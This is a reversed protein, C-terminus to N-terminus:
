RLAGAIERHLVPNATIVGDLLPAPNNFRLPRIARDSTLAGAERLILDGAAIDWEWAPRLTMMADFRGEAVLCLRYALSPRHARTFAPRCAKWHAADELPKGALVTAGDLAETVGARIPLGNLTAGQGRAAAYLRDRKPLYVVAAIVEGAEAVAISHAWIDSGGIFSSTGDIPDVIFVRSTGLRAPDDESEESLWGYAPRAAGLRARLLDNVAIDAETVPGAGEPKDWRRATRADYGLALAGAARAAAILLALDSAPM